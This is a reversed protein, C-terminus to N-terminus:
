RTLYSHEGSTCILICSTFLQVILISSITESLMKALKLLYIHRKTLSIFHEMAKENENNLRNFELRLIEVQGCLHFIIGFFLSDSGLEYKLIFLHIKQGVILMYQYKLWESGLGILEM